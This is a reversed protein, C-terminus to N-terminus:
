NNHITRGVDDAVTHAFVTNKFYRTMKIGAFINRSKGIQSLSHNADRFRFHRFCRVTIIENKIGPLIAKCIGYQLRGVELVYFLLRIRAVAASGEPLSVVRENDLDIRHIRRHFMTFYIFSEIQWVSAQRMRSILTFSNRGVFHNAMADSQVASTESTACEASDRGM